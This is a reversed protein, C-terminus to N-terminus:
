FRIGAREERRNVTTCFNSLEVPGARPLIKFGESQVMKFIHQFSPRAQPDTEWCCRILKTM